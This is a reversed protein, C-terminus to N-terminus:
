DMKMRPMASHNMNDHDMDHDDISWVDKPDSEYPYVHMMWGLVHPLFKGGETECAERTTISGLLGFKANPGLYGAMQGAPAKCFSVHQHWRAMSLPIRANLEDEGLAM